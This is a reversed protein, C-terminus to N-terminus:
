ARKARNPRKKRKEPPTGGYRAGQPDLDLRKASRESMAALRSELLPVYFDRTTQVRSHGMWAQIDGLDEGSESLAIGVSHRANYPRVDAPWGATRLTRAFSRTDYKGWASAAHFLRWAIDMDANLPLPVPEGGKAAPVFWVKRTLDLDRATTRMVQAPRQGTTVLVLFRARTKADRLRGNKEQALLGAITARITEVPVARPRTKTPKKWTVDDAPTKARKGDLTRYLHQLSRVRNQVTKPSPASWPRPKVTRGNKDTRERRPEDPKVQWQAFAREVDAARLTHRARDGFVEVWRALESVRSRYTAPDLRAKVRKLYAQVDAAFTGRPKPAADPEQELLEARLESELTAQQARLFPLDLAPLIFRRERSYVHGGHTVKARVSYGTADQAINTELTHRAGKRGM